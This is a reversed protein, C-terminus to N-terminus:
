NYLYYATCGGGDWGNNTKTPIGNPCENAVWYAWIDGSSGTPYITGDAKIPFTFIDKALQNPAKLGNVDVMLYACEWNKSYITSAAFYSQADCNQRWWHIEVSMGNSLIFGPQNFSIATYAYYDGVSSLCGETNSQSCTKVMKLYNSLATVVANGDAYYGSLTGSNDNALMTFAQSLTSYAVKVGAKMQANQTNQILTPITIEAIVGTIGLVILVEALTFGDSKKWICIKKNLLKQIFRKLEAREIWKPM